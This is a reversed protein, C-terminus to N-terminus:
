RMFLLKFMCFKPACESCSVMDREFFAFVFVVMADIICAVAKSMVAVFCRELLFSLLSNSFPMRRTVVSGLYHYSLFTNNDKNVLAALLYSRKNGMLCFFFVHVSSSLLFMATLVRRCNM